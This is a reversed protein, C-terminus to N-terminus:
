CLDFFFADTMSCDIKCAHRRTIFKYFMPSFFNFWFVVVAAVVVVVVVVVFIQRHCFTECIISVSCPGADTQAKYCINSPNRAGLMFNDCRKNGIVDVSLEQLIPALRWYGSFVYSLSPM